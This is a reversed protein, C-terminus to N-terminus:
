ILYIYKKETKIVIKTFNKTIKNKSNKIYM